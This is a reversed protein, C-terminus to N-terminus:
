VPDQENEIVEQLAENAEAIDPDYNEDNDEFNYGGCNWCHGGGSCGSDSSWCREVEAECTRCYNYNSM